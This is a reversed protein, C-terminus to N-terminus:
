FRDKGYKLNQEVIVFVIANAGATVSAPAIREPTDYNLDFSVKFTEQAFVTSALFTFVLLFYMRKM